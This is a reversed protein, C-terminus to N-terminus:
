DCNKSHPYSESYFQRVYGKQFREAGLPLAQVSRGRGQHRGVGRIQHGKAKDEPESPGSHVHLPFAVEHLGPQVLDQGGGPVRRVSHRQRHATEKAGLFLVFKVETHRVKGTFYFKRKIETM